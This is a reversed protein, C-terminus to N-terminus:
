GSAGQGVAKQAELRRINQILRQAVLRIVHYGFEPNQFYLLKVQEESLSGLRCDTLCRISATRAKDDSFLSIEGFLSGPGLVVDYEEVRVEGEVLYYLVASIDGRRFVMDGKKLRLTTMFPLLEKLGFGSGSQNSRRVLKWIQVTRLTNLPLLLSHLILIPILGNFAGYAIFAVNSAIAVMRLPMMTKMCFTVFVLGSAVYGVAEGFSLAFHM